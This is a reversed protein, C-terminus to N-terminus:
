SLPSLSSEALRPRHDEVDLLNNAISLTLELFINGRYRPVDAKALVLREAFAYRPAPIPWLCGTIKRM